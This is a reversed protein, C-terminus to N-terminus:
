RWSKVERDMERRIDREKIAEKKSHSRKGKALGLEVKVRNGKLYLSLPVLTLGKEKVKVSLRSIERRHLLLKRPRMPDQNHISAQVYPSIRFNVLFMEGDKVQAYSDKISGGGNRLSKVEPGALVIGAELTELIEYDFRATRNACLVKHGQQGKDGM